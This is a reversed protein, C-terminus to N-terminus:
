WCPKCAPRGEPRRQALRWRYGAPHPPVSGTEPDAGGDAEENVVAFGQGKIVYIVEDEWTHSHVPIGSAALRQTAVM